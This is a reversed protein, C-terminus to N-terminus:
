KSRDCVSSKAQWVHGDGGFLKRRALQLESSAASKGMERGLELVVNEWGGLFFHILPTTLITPIITENRVHYFSATRFWWWHSEKARAKGNEEDHAVQQTSENVNKDVECAGDEDSQESSSPLEQEQDCSGASQDEIISLAMDDNRSSGSGRSSGSERSKRDSTENAAEDETALATNDIGFEEQASTAASTKRFSFNNFGTEHAEKNPPVTKGDAGTM